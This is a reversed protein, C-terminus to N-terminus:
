LFPAWGLYMGALNEADTAHSILEQVQGNVNIALKSSSSLGMLKRDIVSLTSKAKLNNAAGKQHKSWEILPDHLFTELVSMLLERNSRLVQMSVQCSKTFAGDVGSIGLADVMNRTLRFPVKEPVDFEKGKDFLCNLDVHLCEGTLHDFLINEGHRDGLGVIYGVMSMVALTSTYAARSAIWKAPEPFAELFWSYFVPPHLPMVKQTFIEVPISKKVM